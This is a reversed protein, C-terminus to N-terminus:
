AGVQNATHELCKEIDRVDVQEGPKVKLDVTVGSETSKVDIASLKDYQPTPCSCTGGACKGLEEMLAAQKEQPVSAEIRLGDQTTEITSKM